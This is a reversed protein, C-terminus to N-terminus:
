KCVNNCDMEYINLYPNFNHNLLGIAVDMKEPDEGMKELMTDRAYRDTMRRRDYEDSLLKCKHYFDIPKDNQITIGRTYDTVKGIHTINILQAFYQRSEENFSYLTCNCFYTPNTLDSTYCHGSFCIYEMKQNREYAVYCECSEEDNFRHHVRNIKLCWELAPIIEGCIHITVPKCQSDVYNNSVFETFAMLPHDSNSSIFRATACVNRRICLKGTKEDVILYWYHFPNRCWDLIINVIVIPLNKFAILETM